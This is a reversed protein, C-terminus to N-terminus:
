GVAAGLLMGVSRGVVAKGEGAGVVKGVGPGVVRGPSGEANGVAAGVAGVSAGEDTVVRAGVPVDEQPDNETVFVADAVCFTAVQPTIAAASCVNVTLM